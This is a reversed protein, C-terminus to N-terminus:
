VCVIWLGHGCAIGVCSVSCFSRAKVQSLEPPLSSKRAYSQRARSSRVWGSAEAVAARTDVNDFMASMQMCQLPRCALCGCIKVTATPDFVSFKLRSEFCTKCQV